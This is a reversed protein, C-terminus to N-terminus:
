LAEPFVGFGISLVLDVWGPLVVRKRIYRIKLEQEFHEPGEKHQITGKIYAEFSSRHRITQSFDINVSYHPRGYEKGRPDFYDFSDEVPDEPQVIVYSKDPSHTVRLDTISIVDGKAAKASQFVLYLGSPLKDTSIRFLLPIGYKGWGNGTLYGYICVSATGNEFDEFTYGPPQQCESDVNLEIHIGLTLIWLCLPTLIIVRRKKKSLRKVIIAKEM